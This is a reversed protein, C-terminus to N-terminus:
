PCNRVTDVRDRDSCDDSGQGGDALDVEGGDRSNLDDAGPGGYLDDAGNGGFLRDNGDGGLVLDAQSQGYVWDNGDGGGVRDSGNGGYVVDSGSGGVVRDTGDGGYGYDNGNHGYLRDQGNGGHMQDDGDRGFIVDNGNAGRIEDNGAAGDLRNHGADGIIDDNAPGGTIHEINLLADTGTTASTASDAALRVTVPTLSQFFNVRDQDAGGNMTDNGAAAFLTDNGSGGNLTDDGADGTLTDVGAQGLLEDAGAGGTIIDRGDGGDLVDDGDLGNITDDGGLGCIVDDGATGSLDDDSATGVIHNGPESERGPCKLAQTQWVVDASDSCVGAPKGVDNAGPAGAAAGCETTANSITGTVTTTGPTTSSITIFAVGNADTTTQQTVIASTSGNAESRTFTVTVGQVPNGFGDTVTCTVTANAGTQQNQTEPECDIIRAESAAAASYTKTGSDTDTVGQISAVLNQAGARTSTIYFEAYGGDIVATQTTVSPPPGNNDTITGVGTSTLTVTAGELEAGGADEASVCVLEVTNIAGTNASDWADPATQDAFNTLNANCQKTNTQGPFTDDTGAGEPLMDIEINSAAIAASTQWTRAVNENPEGAGDDVDNDTSDIWCAITDTGAETGTYSATAVGQANTLVQDAFVGTGTAGNNDLDNDSHPGATVDMDVPVNAVPDGFFDTVTATVTHTTGTAGFSVNPACNINEAAGAREWTKNVSDPSNAEAVTPVNGTVTNTGEAGASQPDAVVNDLTVRAIGDNGTNVRESNQTEGGTPQPDNNDPVLSAEPDDDTIVFDVPVGSLLTGTCDNEDVTVGDADLNNDGNADLAGNTVYARVEHTETTRNTDTEPEVDICSASSVTIWTKQVGGDDSIEGPDVAFNNNTDRWVQITDTGTESGVYSDTCSGNVGTTCTGFVGLPTGGNADLDNDAHPGATVRFQIPEGSVPNGNQDRMTATITHTEGVVNTATEPTADLTTASAAQWTKTSTDSFEGPDVADNDNADHWATLNVTGAQEADISFRYTGDSGNTGEIHKTDPAGAADHEGQQSATNAAGAVGTFTDDDSDDVAGDPEGASDCGAADEYTHGADPSKFASSSTGEVANNNAFQIDDQTDNAVTGVQHVDINLGQIPSSNQDLATVTYTNCFGITQADTEPTMTFSNISQAFGSVRHADGSEDGAETAADDDARAAIMTVQAPTDAGQLECIGSFTDQGTPNDTITPAGLTDCDTWTPDVGPASTSYFLQVTEAADLGESVTGTVVAEAGGAGNSNFFGLTGGNAPSTIEVTEMTIDLTIAQVDTDENNQADVARFTVQGGGAERNAAAAADIDWFAQYTDTTGVQTMTLTVDTTTDADGDDILAQVTTIHAGAGDADAIRAVFHYTGDTSTNKDSVINGPGDGDPNQGEITVAAAHAVQAMPVLLISSAALAVLASSRRTFKRRVSGIM